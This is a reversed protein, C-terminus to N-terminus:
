ASPGASVRVRAPRLTEEGLKYGKRVEEVVVGEPHSGSAVMEVAEHVRPDFAEGVATVPTLGEQKLLENLQWHVMRLSQQLGERDLSEQYNLARDLNDMVDLVRHLMDRKEYRLREATRREQAKRFNEKDAYERLYKDKYAAAEARAAELQAVLDAGANGANMTTEQPTEDKTHDAM